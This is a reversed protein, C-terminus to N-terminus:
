HGATQWAEIADLPYILMLVNLLLGDRIWLALVAETLVFVALARRFGLRRALAFGLGCALIDGMSNVVTDGRYGFAATGERYRRIVFESNEVVEWVAEMSVAMSLRWVPPVRPFIWALLGCFVFGHLAHTFSAPDLLHQSTDPGWYENTWLLVYDCSCWWLRGQSRLQYVTGALVAVMALWPLMKRM